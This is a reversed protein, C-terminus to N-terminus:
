YAKAIVAVQTTQKGTFICPASQGKQLCRISIQHEALTAEENKSGAYPVKVFGLKGSNFHALLADKTQLEIMADNLRNEARKLLSGHIDKLISPLSKLESLPLFHKEGYAEDRRSLCFQSKEIDKPGIEIRVPVGKKVWEWAKAGGRLHTRDDLKVRIPADAYTLKNISNYLTSIAESVKPDNKPNIPLVVVQVPAVKPPLCLGDDDGHMMVMAGLMRTTMGWSTGYTHVVEGSQDTFTIDYVKAFNQGLDHSTCGQLAKGDQMLLELTYTHDAGAFRELVSKEGEVVPMALVDKLIMKYSGLMELATQNADAANSHFTHGEQWLFETSRLFLRTRMEWRVVNAWQNLKLPLDRYSMVWDKVIPGIIAESTPRVIVPETLASDPVLRGDKMTLRSHTVVACEKAFGDIHNAEAQIADVGVFLPAYFNEAGKLKIETNLASQLLEWVGYGWPKIVQTGRVAGNQALPKVVEQYWNPFDENRTPSIANMSLLELLILAIQAYYEWITM